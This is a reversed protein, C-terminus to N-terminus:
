ITCTYFDAQRTPVPKCYYDIAEELVICNSKISSNILNIQASYSDMTLFENATM